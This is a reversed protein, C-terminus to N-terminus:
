SQKKSPIYSPACYKGNIGGGAHLELGTEAELPRVVRSYDAEESELAVAKQLLDKVLPFFKPLQEDDKDGVTTNGSSGETTCCVSDVAITADKLMLKLPFGYNFERSFVEKPIRVETQLSRGSSGNIADIAVAPAIGFKALALLGEAALVLHATNMTNNVAKIAHGAGIVGVHVVKKHAMRQLLPAVTSVADLPGGIMSTLQGSKAGAPGGSVPCDVMAINREALSAAIKKTMMPDGSTCDAVIAGQQDLVLDKCVLGVERSTPLSLFVISCGKLEDLTSVARTGFESAHQEAVSTRKDFVFIPSGDEEDHSCRLRSLNAAMPYGMAGLGIFAVEKEKLLSALTTFSRTAVICRRTAAALM